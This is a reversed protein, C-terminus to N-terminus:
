EFIYNVMKTKSDIVWIQFNIKQQLFISNDFWSFTLVENLSLYVVSNLWILCDTFLPHTLQLRLQLNFVSHIIEKKFYPQLNICVEKEATKLDWDIWIFYRWWSLTMSPIRGRISLTWPGYNPTIRSRVSLTWTRLLHFVAAFARCELDTILYWSYIPESSDRIVESCLCECYSIPKCYRRCRSVVMFHCYVQIKYYKFGTYNVGDTRLWYALILM